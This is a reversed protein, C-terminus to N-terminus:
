TPGCGVATYDFQKQPTTQTSVKGKQLKQQHLPKQWLVLDSRKRKIMSLSTYKLAIHQVINIGRSRITPAYQKQGTQRGTQKDTQRNDVNVKAIVKSGYAISVEYKTHM